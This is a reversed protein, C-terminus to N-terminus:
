RAERRRTRPDILRGRQKREEESILRMANALLSDLNRYGSVDFVQYAQVWSAEWMGGELGTMHEKAHIDAEFLFFHVTKQYLHTERRYRFTTKGVPAIYRLGDLGTEEKIERVATQVLSEGLQQKGKPFTWKGFANKVFFIEVRGNARRFIIGGASV